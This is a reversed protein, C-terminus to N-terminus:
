HVSDCRHRDYHCVGIRIQQRVKLVVLYGERNKLPVKLNPNIGYALKIGSYMQSLERVTLRESVSIQHLQRTTPIFITDKGRVQRHIKKNESVIASENHKKLVVFYISKLDGEM